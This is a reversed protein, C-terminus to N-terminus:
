QFRKCKFNSFPGFKSRQPPLKSSTGKISSTTNTTYQITTNYYKYVCTHGHQSTLKLSGGVRLPATQFHQLTLKSCARKITQGHQSM